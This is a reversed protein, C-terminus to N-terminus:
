THENVMEHLVQDLPTATVKLVTSTLSSDLVAPREYLYLIELFELMVPNDRGMEELEAPMMRRLSPAPVGATAALHTALERASATSTSPVHWPPFWGVGAAGTPCECPCTGRGQGARRHRPRQQEDGELGLLQVAVM